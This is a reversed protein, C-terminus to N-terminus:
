MVINQMEEIQSRIQKIRELHKKQVDESASKKYGENNVTKLLKDMETQLKSLKKGSNSTDRKVSPQLNTFVGFTCVHSATSKTTFPVKGFEEETRHLIVRNCLTLQQINATNRQLLETLQDSKSLLHVVPNHKRAIPPNSESKAQRINQCIELLQDFESELKSDIWDTPNFRLDVPPLHPRLEAVLYPTFVELHYLGLSLCYQLVRCHNAATSAHEPTMHVKTTELYVDCFNSYFFTKWAAAALHFNYTELSKDFVTITNGLRSLIWRDMESLCEKTFQTETPNFRKVCGLTYRTAQWIKNFFLKNTLCEQINFNIFYNKVNSSCLTFRLADTGCEPIGNPFMKKQGSLSKKMESASLTGQQHLAEIEKNLQELTIGNIVHEPKIVNGLSKSMKRGYEDCIIGHLLIKKFPLQGTLQQGLMVMRAVWFFMIDHGTEMIDLPYFRKFDKSDEPWGLSSFPLLSSSFWTDLVDTDQAVQFDKFGYRERALHQAEELSRAAVWCANGASKVEYAPIQHGWWLQRSICWDHCNELWRFWEKEFSNPIIQLQGCEVSEMARCAMERCRIFWQPRLLFEIVDKSRSCIPLIMSHPKIERLLSQKALVEMMKLRAEYRPLESFSGLNERIMGKSNIVEILPLQHKRAIDYDYRDHAPTIKVAGTGFEPDVSEDFILPIEEGRIPHWLMTRRNRMHSYRGDAPNVAVAVDGLLTEPRTTSIVIEEELGQVKYAIDVMEGFVVKKRYGPVEIATPGNIEISDVEIDSIASELTCSWNVLSQDRYILDAEFLRVFAEKVAKSQQEDMTFYERSWDMRSGLRCLDGKISKSKSEKWAWIEDLFRDRGIDHRSLKREKLLKKEVVVQTAIGAHDMGPIWLMDLGQKQKRRVIVDQISGTLAHGLHLEGTVNPPPLLLSFKPKSTDNPAVSGVGTNNAEVVSPKYAADLERRTSYFNTTNNPVQNRSVYNLNRVAHFLRKKPFCQLM